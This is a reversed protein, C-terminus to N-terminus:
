AWTNLTLSTSRHSPPRIYYILYIGASWIVDSETCAHRVTAPAHWIATAHTGANGHRWRRINMYARLILNTSTIKLVDVYANGRRTPWRLQSSLFSISSSVWRWIRWWGRPSGYKWGAIQCRVYGRTCAPYCDCPKARHRVHESQM